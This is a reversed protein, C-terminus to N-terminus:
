NTRKVAPSIIKASPMKPCMPKCSAGGIHTMAPYLNACDAFSREWNLGALHVRLAPLEDARDDGRDDGAAEDLPKETPAGAARLQIVGFGVRRPDLHFSLFRDEARIFGAAVKQRF